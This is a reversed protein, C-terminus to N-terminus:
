RRIILLYGTDVSGMGHLCVEGCEYCRGKDGDLYVSGDDCKYCPYPDGDLDRIQPLIVLGEDM